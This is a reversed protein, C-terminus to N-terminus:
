GNTTVHSTVPAPRPEGQSLDVLPPEGQSVDVPPEGHSLDVPPPEGAM